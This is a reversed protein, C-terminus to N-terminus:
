SINETVLAGPKPSYGALWQGFRLIRIVLLKDSVGRARYCGHWPTLILDVTPHDLVEYDTVSFLPYIILWCDIHYARLDGCDSVVM